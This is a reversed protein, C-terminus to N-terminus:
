MAICPPLIALTMIMMSQLGYHLSDMAGTQSLWRDGAHFALPIGLAWAGISFEAFAYYLLPSKRRFFPSQTVAGGLWSGIGLGLMFISLVASLVPTIVGFHGM